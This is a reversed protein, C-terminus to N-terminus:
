QLKYEFIKVSGAVPEKIFISNGGTRVMVGEAKFLSQENRPVRPDIETMVVVDDIVLLLLENSLPHFDFSRVPKKNIIIERNCANMEDCFYSPANSEKNVWRAYVSEGERWLVVDGKRKVDEIKGGGTSTALIEPYDAPSVMTRTSTAFLGVATVYSSTTPVLEAYPIVNPMIFASSESVRQPLVEIIKEWSRYGEKKVVVYYVRPTLNQVFFGNKLIGVGKSLKGDLYLDAKSEELGIYIGGTKVLKLGDGLRYGSSYLLTIPVLVVFTVM